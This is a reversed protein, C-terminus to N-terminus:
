LILDDIYERLDRIVEAGPHPYRLTFSSVEVYLESLYERLGPIHAGGIAAIARTLGRRRLDEVMYLANSKDRARRLIYRIEKVDEPTQVNKLRILFNDFDLLSRYLPDRSMWNLLMNFLLLLNQSYASVYETNHRQQVLEPINFHELSESIEIPIEGKMKRLIGIAESGQAAILAQRPIQAKRERQEANLRHGVGRLGEDYHHSSLYFISLHFLAALIPDELGLSLINANDDRFLREWYIAVNDGRVLEPLQQDVLQELPGHDLSLLLVKKRDM